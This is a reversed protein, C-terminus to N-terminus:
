AADQRAAADRAARRARSVTSVSIKLLEAIQARSLKDVDTMRAVQAVLTDTLM